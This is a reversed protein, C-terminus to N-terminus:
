LKQSMNEFFLELENFMDKFFPIVNGIGNIVVPGWPQIFGYTKSEEILAPKILNLQSAYFLLVSYVLLYMAAYFLIGGLRNVWGLLITEVAKQLITAGLRILLVVGIFVLLFSVVPLWEQSITVAAGIYGAVVTSLKMAAVLGIVVAVLSFVGVILGRQYGKYIALLMLIFFIIDLVM